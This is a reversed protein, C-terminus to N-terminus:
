NDTFSMYVTSKANDSNQYYQKSSTLTPTRSAWVSNHSVYSHKISKLDCDDLSQALDLSFIKNKIDDWNFRDTENFALLGQLCVISFNSITTSKCILTSRLTETAYKIQQYLQDTQSQHTTKADTQTFKQQFLM